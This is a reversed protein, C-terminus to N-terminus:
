TVIEMDLIPQFLISSCELVRSHDCSQSWELITMLNLDNSIAEDLVMDWTARTARIPHLSGSLFLARKGDTFSLLHQVTSFMSPIM